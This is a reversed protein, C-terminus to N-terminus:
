GPGNMGFRCSRVSEGFGAELPQDREGALLVEELVDVVVERADRIRGVGHELDVEVAVAVAHAGVRQGFRPEVALDGRRDLELRRLDFAAGGQALEDVGQHGDGLGVEDVLRM